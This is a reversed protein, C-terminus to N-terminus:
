NTVQYWINWIWQINIIPRRSNAKLTQQFQNLCYYAKRKTNKSLHGEGGDESVKGNSLFDIYYYNDKTKDPYYNTFDPNVEFKDGKVLVNEKTVVNKTAERLDTYEIEYGPVYSQPLYNNGLLPSFRYYRNGSDKMHTAYYYAYYHLNFPIQVIFLIGLIILWKKM